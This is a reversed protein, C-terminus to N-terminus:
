WPKLVLGISLEPAVRNMGSALADTTISVGGLLRLFWRTYLAWERGLSFTVGYVATVATVGYVELWRTGILGYSANLLWRSERGYMAIAGASGGFVGTGFSKGPQYGVGAYPAVAFPTEKSRLYFAANFGLGAYQEGAGLSLALGSTEAPPPDPSERERAFEYAHAFPDASLSALGSAAAADPRMSLVYTYNSAACHVHGAVRCADGLQTYYDLEDRDRTIADKFAGIAEGPRGLAVLTQGMYSFTSASQDGLRVAERYAALAEVHRGGAALATARASEAVGRQAAERQAAQARMRDQPSQAHAHASMVLASAALVACL